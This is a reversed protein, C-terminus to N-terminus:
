ILVTYADVFTVKNLSLVSNGDCIVFLVASTEYIRKAIAPGIPPNNVM